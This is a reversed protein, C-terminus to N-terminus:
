RDDRLLQLEEALVPEDRDFLYGLLHLGIVGDGDFTRAACSIEAGRVLTLGHPAAATAEDWGATTDHDTLAVVDLGAGVARAVVDAPPRTGDSATSHVHLDIRM